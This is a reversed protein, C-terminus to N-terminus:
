EFGRYVPEGPMLVGALDEDTDPVLPVPAALQRRVQEMGIRRWYLEGAALNYAEAHAYDDPGTKVYDVRAGRPTEEVRRVLAGLHAPYDAPLSELPPLLVGGTRFRELTAEIVRTRWLAVYRADDDVKWAETDRRAGVQPTFYGARYVRGPFRDAFAQAFRGEPAHDICAMDVGFRVMLDCLREFATAGDRDDIEGVFVRRGTYEDISEEIVVNLARVSAVDCGLTVFRQSQLKPLPTLTPDVCARIQELSLRGEAPAYPEGLDHTHFKAIQDPRTKRSNAVIMAIPAGPVILKPVHYGRVDRDPYTAVWEGRTVDLRKRCKRCVVALAEQDVNAAFAESGRMPNHKGCRRCKVVWVRQDSDLYAQSIGWGPISPVGVRRILGASQPGSVRRETGEISAQDTTDFEDFVVLDAPVSDVERQLGRMYLWGSGIQRLAANDVADPAMRELLQPASRILPRVRHKSFDHLERDSPFAYIVVRSHVDAHYLALRIAWASVGVQTSKQVVVERDHAAADGYMERQFAFKRFDLPGRSEPVREAWDRFPLRRVALERASARAAEGHEELLDRLGAHMAENPDPLPGERSLDLPDRAM